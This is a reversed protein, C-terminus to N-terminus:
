LDKWQGNSLEFARVFGERGRVGVASTQDEGNSFVIMGSGITTPTAEASQILGTPTTMLGMLQTGWRASSDPTPLDWSNTITSSDLPSGLPSPQAPLVLKVSSKLITRALRPDADDFSGPVTGTDAYIEVLNNAPDVVLFHNVGEFISNMRAKHLFVRTLRAAARTEARGRTLGWAAVSAAMILTMIGVVVMVEILSYGDSRLGIRRRLNAAREGPGDGVRTPARTRFLETSLRIMM